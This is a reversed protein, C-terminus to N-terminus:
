LALTSSLNLTGILESLDDAFTDYDNGKWPQSSRGHGRRDFAVCRFGHSAMFMMQDDWVDANLPWGYSFVVTRGEGWDKYYIETGDKTTVYSAGRVGMSSRGTPRIADQADAAITTNPFLALTPAALLGAFLVKRRSAAEESPHCDDLCKM